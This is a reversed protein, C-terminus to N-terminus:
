LLGREVALLERANMSLNSEEPSWLGLAVEVALYAGLGVNSSESWFELDPSVQALSM